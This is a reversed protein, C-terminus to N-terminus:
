MAREPWLSPSRSQHDTSSVGEKKIKDIGGRPGVLTHDMDVEPVNWEQYFAKIGKTFVCTVVRLTDRQVLGTGM